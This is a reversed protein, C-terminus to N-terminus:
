QKKFEEIKKQTPRVLEAYEKRITESTISNRDGRLAARVMATGVKHKEALASVVDSNYKPRNTNSKNM